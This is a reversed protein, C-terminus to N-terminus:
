VTVLIPFSLVVSQAKGAHVGRTRDIMVEAKVVRTVTLPHPHEAVLRLTWTRIKNTANKVSKDVVAEFVPLIAGRFAVRGDDRAQDVRGVPAFLAGEEEWRLM